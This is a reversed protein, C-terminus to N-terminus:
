SKNKLGNKSGDITEEIIAGKNKDVYYQALTIVEFTLWKMM